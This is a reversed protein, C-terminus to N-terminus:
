PLRDWLGNEGGPPHCSPRERPCGGLAADGGPWATVEVPTQRDRWSRDWDEVKEEGQALDIREEFASRAAELEAASDFFAKVLVGSQVPVVPEEVEEIGTAGLEFLRDQDLELSESSTRFSLWWYSDM